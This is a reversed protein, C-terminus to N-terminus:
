LKNGEEGRERASVKACLPRTSSQAEVVRRLRTLSLTSSPVLRHYSGRSTLEKDKELKDLTRKTSLNSSSAKCDMFLM